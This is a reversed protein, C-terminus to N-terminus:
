LGRALEPRSDVASSWHETPLIQLRLGPSLDETGAIGTLPNM